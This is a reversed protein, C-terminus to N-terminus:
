NVTLYGIMGSAHHELMHCHFLWKGPNNAVFILDAKEDPQMLYTDRLLDIELNEFEKSNVWFHHGHLHMTHPWRTDNWCRLIVIEGLKLNAIKYNYDGVNENFAWLKTENLALDRFERREGNFIASKLNGMAGGQMHVNIVKANNLSPFPYYPKKNFDLFSVSQNKPEFTAAVLENGTSVEKLHELKSTEDILIDIRQGPGLVIKNTKFPNCPSGDTAIVRFYIDDNLMFNLVRANATNLFRLRAQGSRFVEINPKFVGNITLRNGYRGAHSWDHLNGLSSVDIQLNENLLWDDALVLIDNKENLQDHDSVILPGYLGRTVQEWAKNHAHYWFTGADKVPFRYVFSEGPEVLPQSLFPVGDMSNINRIGHWHVASPEDLQNNFIIEIVDNKNATILPGPCNDNFLWLDTKNQNKEFSHKAKKATLEYKKINNSAKSSYPLGSLFLGAGTNKIFKRRTIM